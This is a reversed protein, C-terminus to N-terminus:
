GVEVRGFVLAEGSGVGGVKDSVVKRELVWDVSLFNWLNGFGFVHLVPFAKRM